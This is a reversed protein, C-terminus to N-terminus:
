TTLVSVEPSSYSEGHINTASVGVWYTTANALGTANYTLTGSGVSASGTFSGGNQQEGQTTGWYVTYGTIPYTALASGDALTEPEFWDVTFQDNGATVADIMPSYPVPGASALLWPLYYAM